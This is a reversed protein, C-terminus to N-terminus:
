CPGAPGASGVPLLGGMHNTYAGARITVDAPFRDNILIELVNNDPGGLPEGGPPPQTVEDRYHIDLATAAYQDDVGCNGAGTDDYFEITDMGVPASRDVLKFQAWRYNATNDMAGPATPDGVFRRFQVSTPSNLAIRDAERLLKSMQAAAMAAQMDDTNRRRVAESLRVRSVDIQGIALLVVFGIGIAIMLEILSLGRANRRM